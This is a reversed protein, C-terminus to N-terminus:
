LERDVTDCSFPTESVIESQNSFWWGCLVCIEVAVLAWDKWELSSDFPRWASWLQLNESRKKELELLKWPSTWAKRRLPRSQHCFSSQSRWYNGWFKYIKCNLEAKATLKWEVLLSKRTVNSLQTIKRSRDCNMAVCLLWHSQQM